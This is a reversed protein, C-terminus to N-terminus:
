VYGSETLMKPMYVNFYRQETIHGHVLTHHYVLTTDIAIMAWGFCSHSLVVIEHDRSGSERCADMDSDPDPELDLNRDFYRGVGSRFELGLRSGSSHGLESGLKLGLGSGLRSRSISGSRLVPELDPDLDLDM